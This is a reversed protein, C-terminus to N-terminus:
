LCTGGALDILGGLLGHDVADARLAGVVPKERLLREDLRLTPM